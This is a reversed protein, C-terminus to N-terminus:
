KSLEWVLAEVEIAWDAWDSNGTERVMEDALVQYRPIGEVDRGLCRLCWGDGDIDITVADGHDTQGTGRWFCPTGFSIASM